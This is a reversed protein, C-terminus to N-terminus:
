PMKKKIIEYFDVTEWEVEDFKFVITEASHSDSSLIFKAGRERLYEYIQPAPYPTTRCKRSIAGTNIEFVAGTELLRDAAKQWAAVYRPHSEDFLTPDLEIFKTILDFHGVVDANWKEVVEGVMRYYEEVLAYIDGGFYKEAGERLIESRSDVPIHGDPTKIWHASGIVYDYGDPPLPAYYDQEIGHYVDIKDKYKEKLRACEKAYEEIKDLHLCYPFDMPTYSHESFGIADLGKDIASLVVDEAFSGGDSFKSHVHFDSYKM